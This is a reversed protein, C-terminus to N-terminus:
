LAHGSYARETGSVEPRLRWAAFLLQLVLMGVVLAAIM